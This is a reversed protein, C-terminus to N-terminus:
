RNDISPNAITSQRDVFQRNAIPPTGFAPTIIRRHELRQMRMLAEAVDARMEPRQWDAILLGDIALRWDAIGRDAIAM